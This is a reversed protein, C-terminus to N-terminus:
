SIPLKIDPFKPRIQEILAAFHKKSMYRGLGTRKRFLERTGLHLTCGKYRAPGHVCHAHPISPFPDADSKHVRWVEGNVRYDKEIFARGDQSEWNCVGVCIDYHDGTEELSGEVASLDIM